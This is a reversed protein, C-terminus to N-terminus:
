RERLQTYIVTENHLNGHENLLNGDREIYIVTSLAHCNGDGFLNNFRHNALFTRIM